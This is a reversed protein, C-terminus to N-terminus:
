DKHNNNVISQLLAELEKVKEPFKSSLNKKEGKDTNLNYLQSTMDNGLEINNKNTKAGSHPRIYKWGDKTLLGLNENAAHEVVNQRGNSNKGLLVDLLEESDPAENKSKVQGTLRALSAYLDVHNYLAASTSHPKIKGPWKVIFPVRTGADFASYKGGRFDGAPTHGNLNDFGGDEYGDQIAPGNDSSFIILTNQSLKLSDLVKLLQGVSWDLQLIADGRLGLGSKGLFRSNPVHPVHIDHPAFYLFFSKQKNATIFHVAKSILVYAIDEDKWYASKGGSMYGIRSIGNIITQDHGSNSYPIKLLEPHELGTPETGVKEKYSVQIPDTHSLNVVRHNEVYVCPVRDGTAPLIFSYNFGCEIPGPKIEENWEPGNVEGLGLHWKGVAATSYGAKQLMGPLTGKNIPIILTADGSAIRTGKVRWAYQGTLLSYRSPTCTASSAHANTFNLGNAAIKDINPTKIKTAGNASIDGYGLDDAYIIIINPKSQGYVLSITCFIFACLLRLINLFLSPRVSM